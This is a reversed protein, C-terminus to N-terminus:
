RTLLARNVPNRQLFSDVFPAPVDHAARERVWHQATHLVEAAERAAKAATLAAGAHLWLEARYIFSPEASQALKLAQRAAAASAKADGRAAHCQALRLLAALCSGQLGRQQALTLTAQLLAVAQEDDLLQAREVDVIMAIEPWGTRPAIAAAQALLDSGDSGNIRQLRALLVLRRAEFHPPLREGAAALQLAQQARAHQGLEIWGHARHLHVVPLRAPNSTRLESEALDGAALALTYRGLARACQMQLVACFGVTSGRMEYSAILRQAQEVLDRAEHVAGAGLRSVAHNALLSVQQAADGGIQAAAIASRRQASAEETRGLNDLVVAFNDHFEAQEADDLLPASANKRAGRAKSPAALAAQAAEFHALADDFRGAMALATALRHRIVLMLKERGADAPLTQALALAQEGHRVAGAEDALQICYWARQGLADCRQAPTQALSDLRDLLGFGSAQRISNMHTDVARAVSDFAAGFDGTAEAIDAARLLFAIRESERLAAHARAAAARLSPLARERQGAAEWHAAIRAPEGQAAEIRQAVQAHLHRAILAPVGSLM